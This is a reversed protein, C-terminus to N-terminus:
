RIPPHALPGDATAVSAIVSRRSTRNGRTM